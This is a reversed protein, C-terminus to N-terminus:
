FAHLFYPKPFMPLFFARLFMPNQVASDDFGQDYLMNKDSLLVEMSKEQHMGEQPGEQAGGWGSWVRHPCLM